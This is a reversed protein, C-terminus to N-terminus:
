CSAPNMCFIAVMKFSNKLVANSKWPGGPIYNWLNYLFACLEWHSLELLVKFAQVTQGVLKTVNKKKLVTAYFLFNKISIVM